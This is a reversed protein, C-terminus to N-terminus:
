VLTLLSVEPRCNIRIGYLNGVGKTTYIWRNDWRHLGQVFRKDKVPAIPAGIFPLSVQGGHTHGCLMLDWPYNKLEDKTDPNHSLVVTATSNESSFNRFTKEPLFENAWVDGLGALNLKWNNIQLQTLENDLLKIKSKDLLARVLKTDDYGKIHHGCWAGGDHNGLTAYTPAAAPLKSLIEAYRNWDEYKRTIYDGTLCILDPRQSIGLDVAREIFDLSVTHSAHLDSLQLIKLPKAALNKSVSIQERGVELWECEFAKGYAGTAATGIGFVGLSSLFRRRNFKKQLLSM